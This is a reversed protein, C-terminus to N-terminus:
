RWLPVWFPNNSGDIVRMWANQGATTPGTGGITGLTPAAGGGLAVNAKNWKIDGSPTLNIHAGATTSIVLESASTLDGAANITVGGADGGGRLVIAQEARIILDGAAAVGSISVGDGIVFYSKITAGRKMRIMPLAADIISASGNIQIAGGMADKALPAAGSLGLVLTGDDHLTMRSTGAATGILATYWTISTGQAAATWNEAAHFQMGVRSLTTFAGGSHYGRAAINMMMTNALLQTPAGAVGLATRALIVNEQGYSDMTVCTQSGSTSLHVLWTSAAPSVGDNIQVSGNGGTVTLGTLTVVNGSGIGLPGWKGAALDTAFVGSTHAVFCVYTGTGQIVTDGIVYATATLWSARLTFAGSGILALAAGSLTIPDVVSDRLRGDDRQIASLNALTQGITTALNDFEVDVAATRVTSRGAVGSAEEQSFDTTPNYPSPQM